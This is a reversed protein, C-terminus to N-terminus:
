FHFNRKKFAARQLFNSQSPQTSSWMIVKEYPQLWVWRKHRITSEEEQSQGRAPSRRWTFSGKRRKRVYKYMFEGVMCRAIEDV